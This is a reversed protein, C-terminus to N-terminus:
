AADGGHPHALYFELLKKAATIVQRCQRDSMMAIHPPMSSGTGTDYIDQMWRYAGDKTTHGVDILCDIQRHAQSRLQRLQLNALFGLPRCTGPACHVYADCVPYRNCVWLWGDGKGCVSKTSRLGVSGGCYPCKKGNSYTKERKM